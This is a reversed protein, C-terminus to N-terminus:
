NKQKNWEIRKIIVTKSGILEKILKM